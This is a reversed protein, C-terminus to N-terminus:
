KWGEGLAEYLQILSQLSAGQAQVLYNQYNLLTRQADLVNQFQTLGQRYLELSLSLTERYQNVTARLAAIQKISSKYAAMANEVEQTATLVTNNYELISQQLVAKAQITSYLDEGGKFINWRLTPSIQWVASHRKVLNEIRDSSFGINSNILIQPLWDRKSAGLLAVNSAIEREAKLIDPRRRLLEEPNGIAVPHIYHPLESDENLIDKLNQPYIGLLVALAHRYQQADSEVSPITAQTSYYVSTAQSLDLKSALGTNYRTEVLQMIEKQSAANENLVDIQALSQKLAFYNRAVNACLTTMVGRYEEESARFQEKQAKARMYIAGFLDIQWSSSITASYYGEYEGAGASPTINGSIRERQWGANLDVTPLLAGKAKQWMARAIRINELASLASYNNGAAAEILRILQKDHFNYWWLQTTVTTQEFISDNSWSYPLPQSLFENYQASAKGLTFTFIIIILTKKMRCERTIYEYCIFGVITKNDPENTM